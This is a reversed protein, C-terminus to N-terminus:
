PPVQQNGKPNIGKRTWPGLHRYADAFSVFIGGQSDIAKIEGKFAVM